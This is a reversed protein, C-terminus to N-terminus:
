NGAGAPQSAASEAQAGTDKSTGNDSKLTKINYVKKVTDLEEPTMDFILKDYLPNASKKNGTAIRWENLTAVGGLFRQMYTNGEMNETQSKEKKNEQMEPVKSNDACIYRRKEPLRFGSTWIQAYRDAWPNIVNSYFSKMDADANAFTSQDKSPVLHRPVRLVAYIACADSLTEEFPQLEQISMSTRKFDVPQSTIGFPNKGNTIGYTQQMDKIVEMKETKTLAINGSSDSKNSVFYGLQGRKIYINGRAEYVPILNSIPKEASMILPAGNNLDYPSELFTHFIMMVKEPSFKRLGYGFPQPAPSEIEQVLDSIETASYLDFGRKMKVTVDQAPLNWLALLNDFDFAGLTDPVNMYQFMRGTLIENCVMGYVVDKFSFLPNPKEFIRNFTANSYDIEDNWDKRLQFTTDAVRSAIEHIPAGIEPLCSFLTIFNQRSYFGNLLSNIRREYSWELTDPGDIELYAPQSPVISLNRQEVVPPEAVVVPM